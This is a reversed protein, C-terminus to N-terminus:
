GVKKTRRMELCVIFRVGQSEMKNEFKRCNMILCICSSKNNSSIGGSSGGLGLRLYLFLFLSGVVRRGWEQM